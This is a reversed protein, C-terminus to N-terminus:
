RVQGSGPALSALYAELAAIGEIAEQAIPDHRQRERRPPGARLGETACGRYGAVWWSGSVILGAMLWWGLYLVSDWLLLRVGPDWPYDSSHRDSGPMM